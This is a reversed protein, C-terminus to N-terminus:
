DELEKSEFEELMRARKIMPDESPEFFIDVLDKRAILLFDSNLLYHLKLEYEQVGKTEAMVRAVTLDYTAKQSQDTLAKEVNILEEDSENIKISEPNLFALIEAKANYDLVHHVTDGHEEAFLEWDFRLNLIHYYLGLQYLM